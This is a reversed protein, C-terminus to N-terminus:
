WIGLALAGLNFVGIAWGVTLDYLSVGASSGCLV